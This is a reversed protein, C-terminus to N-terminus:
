RLSLVAQPLPRQISRSDKLGSAGEATAFARKATDEDIWHLYAWEHTEGADVIYGDMGRSELLSTVLKVHRKLRAAYETISLDDNKRAMVLATYGASWDPAQDVIVYATNLQMNDVGGAPLARVPVCGPADASAIAVIKALGPPQEGITWALRVDKAGSTGATARGAQIPAADDMTCFRLPTALASANGHTATVDPLVPLAGQAFAAASCLSLVLSSGLLRM